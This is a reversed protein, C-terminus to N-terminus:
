VMSIVGPFKGLAEQFTKFRNLSVTGKLIYFDDVSEIRVKKFDSFVARITRLGHVTNFASIVVRYSEFREGKKWLHIDTEGAKKPILLLQGNDLISTGLLSDIGVAVRTVSGVEVTKISGVHLYLVKAKRSSAESFGINILCLLAVVYLLSRKM